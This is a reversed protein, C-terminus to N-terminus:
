RDKSQTMSADTTIPKTLISLVSTFSDTLEKNSTDVSASILIIPKDYKKALTSVFKAAKGYLTQQDSKGEGTVIGDSSAISTELDLIKAILEAGPELKAGIVKLGFGLGGAAGVGETYQHNNETYKTVE